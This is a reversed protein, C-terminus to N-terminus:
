IGRGEVDISLSREAQGAGPLWPDIKLARRYLDLAGKKDGLDQLIIALGGLASFHRPELTLVHEIDKLASAYDNKLLHVAARKDWGEVFGPDLAVVEDFYFLARDYDKGAVADLGRGMLLDISPSGSRMWIEFIATEVSQAEGASKAKALQGFLADLMATRARAEDFATAPAQPAVADPDAGFASGGASLLFLAALAVGPIFRTAM